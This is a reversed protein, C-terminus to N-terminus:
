ASRGENSNNSNADLQGDDEDHLLAEARQHEAASLPQSENGTKSRRRLVLVLVMAGLLLLLLPGLWLLLTYSKVPPKFLIFDGFRQVMFDIIEKDSMGKKMMDRMERRLDKAFDSESGSLAQNQCVLCRLNAAMKMLRAEIQPDEALPAAEKAVVPAQVLLLLLLVALYRM